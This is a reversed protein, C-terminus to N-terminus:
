PLRWGWLEFGPKEGFVSLMCDKPYPDRNGMFTIRGSGHENGCLFLVLAKGYVHGRFWNAGVSAPTLLFIRGRESQRYQLWKECKSAWPEIHGFPPNLWNLLSDWWGPLFNDYPLPGRLFPLALSDAKKTLVIPAKKNKETGALDVEPTGFRAEVSRIFEWPTAYNQKSRGPKQPPMKRM